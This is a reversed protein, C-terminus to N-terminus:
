SLSSPPELARRRAEAEPMDYLGGILWLHEQATLNEYLMPADPVYGVLRRAKLDEWPDEGYILVRGSTPRLLGVLMKITTSKGAGNSGLFAFIEGPAVRLSLRDVAVFDGFCKTLGQVEIAAPGQAPTLGTDPELNKKDPLFYVTDEQPVYRATVPRVGYPLSGTFREVSRILARFRGPVVLGAGVTEAVVAVQWTRVSLRLQDATRHFTFYLV